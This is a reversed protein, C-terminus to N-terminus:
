TRSRLLAQAHEVTVPAFAVTSGSRLQAFRDLDASIVTGIRPYGGTPQHDRMLVIPTGDGLIQIDGVVVPESVLSLLSQGAFVGGTDALCVGMRDMASTVTFPQSIFADRLPTAFRDAHAGWIFRLPGEPKPAADPEQPDLGKGSLTLEDGSRLVRGEIGGLQARLNTARSGLVAPIDVSAGFRLYGYVGSPGPTISIRDGQRAKAAGPWPRPRGNIRVAFQGGDWGLRVTGDIVTLELGGLSIEIATGNPAGARHGARHYAGQDMPGSASIGHALLGTRGADQITTLPGAREIRLIASM